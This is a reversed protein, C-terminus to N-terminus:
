ADKKIQSASSVLPYPNTASPIIDDIFALMEQTPNTM